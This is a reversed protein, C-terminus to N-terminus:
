SSETVYITTQHLIDCTYYLNGDKSEGTDKSSKLGKIGIQVPLTSTEQRAWSLVRGAGEGLGTQTTVVYGGGGGPTYSGQSYCLM